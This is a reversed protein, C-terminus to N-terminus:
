QLHPLKRRGVQLCGLAVLLVTGAAAASPLPAVGPTIQDQAGPSSLAFLNPQRAGSPSLDLYGGTTTSTAWKAAESADIALSHSSGGGAYPTYTLHSAGYLVDWIAFQLTAAGDVTHIDGSYQAWLASLQDAQTAIMHGDGGLLGIGPDPANANTLPALSYNYSGGISIDQLLEICFTDFAAPLGDGAPGSQTWHYLGVQGSVTNTGSATTLSITVNSGYSVGVFTVPISEAGARGSGWAVVAFISLIFVRRM